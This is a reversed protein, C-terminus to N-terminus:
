VIGVKLSQLINLAKLYCILLRFCLGVFFSVAAGNILINGAYKVIPLKMEMNRINPLHNRVEAM